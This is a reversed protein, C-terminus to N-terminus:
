VYNEGQCHFLLDSQASDLQLKIKKKAFDIIM